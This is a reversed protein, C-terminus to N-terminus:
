GRSRRFLRGRKVPEETQGAPPRDAAHRTPGIGLARSTAEHIRQRSVFHRNGPAREALVDDYSKAILDRRAHDDRVAARALNAKRDREARNGPATLEMLQDLISDANPWGDMNWGAGTALVREGLAGGSPVLVPRGAMWAESLTYGFTEPWVAPFVVIGIRYYDFLAEIEDARYPGHVTLVRDDSQGRNDRDTYGVVVFRLPIGRDRVRAVLGELHRAGKEPGIAGLVGVHRCEDAPLPFGQTVGHASEREHIEPWPPAVTVKIGPYYKELTDRAWQSPAFIRRARDLFIRYRSRWRVVDVNQLGSLNSLCRRCVAHDTTAGCYEGQDGILYVTPCALYMDHVSYCYPIAAEELIQLLDDGSGILSHVHVLRIRLWSCLPALWDHPVAGTERPYDYNTLTAADAETLRWRHDYNTPTSGLTDTLRWRDPLIRLFFHRYGACSAAMLEHVYKETGGGRDHLVHLVGPKGPCSLVALQSQIMGRVPKVPDRSIFERVLDIYTPHKALVKVLNEETRSSRQDGFSRSGLHVVFTDDCLVNRYGAASARMSFDNEEGYGKGFAEDFVGIERILRRRIFMCFGVATPLDLYVPVAAMEMARNVLEPDEPAPNNQCFRPFSCIEANNSFPTITGIRPDSAACRRMKYLWARTVLTDSNLLVVDNRSWTMGRNVTAVFGLNHENRLLVLHSSRLAALRRFLAGIREDSSGDDILILRHYGGHRQVSELCAAFDEYANHVPVIVDVASRMLM